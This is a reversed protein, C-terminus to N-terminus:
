DTWILYTWCDTRWRRRGTCLQFGEGAWFSVFLFLVRCDKALAIEGVLCCRCRCDLRAIWSRSRSWGAERPMPGSSRGRRGPVTCSCRVQASACAPPSTDEKWDTITMKTGYVNRPFPLSLVSTTPHTPDNRHRNQGQTHSHPHNTSHTPPPIPLPLPRPPSSSLFQSPKYYCSPTPQISRMQLNSTTRLFDIVPSTRNSSSVRSTDPVYHDIKNELCLM